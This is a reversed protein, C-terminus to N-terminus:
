FKYVAKAHPNMDKYEEIEAQNLVSQLLDINDQAEKITEQAQIIVDEMETVIQKQEALTTKLPL